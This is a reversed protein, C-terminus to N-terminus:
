GLLASVACELASVRLGQGKVWVCVLAPVLLGSDPVSWAILGTNFSAIDCMLDQLRLSSIATDFRPQQLMSGETPEGAPEFGVGGDVGLLGEAQLASGPLYLAATCRNSACPAVFFAVSALANAPSGFGSGM